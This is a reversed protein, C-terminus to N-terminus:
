SRTERGRACEQAVREATEAVVANLRPGDECAQRFARKVHEETTGGTVAAVADRLGSREVDGVRGHARDAGYGPRARVQLRHEAGSTGTLILGRAEWHATRDAYAHPGQPNDRVARRIVDLVDRFRYNAYTYRRPDGVPPATGRLAASLVAYLREAFDAPDVEDRMVSERAAVAREVAYVLTCELDRETLAQLSARVAAAPGPAEKGMAQASAAVDAWILHLPAVSRHHADNMTRLTCPERRCSAGCLPSRSGLLPPETSAEKTSEDHEGHPVATLVPRDMGDSAVAAHGPPLAVVNESQEQHLNMTAGVARRDDEAPLRHMVKLASNKIVDPLIKSPIQEVVVVGEGYARIEALLSAFLEVAAAAPGSDVNKLLRHAEEVVLVHRLPVGGAGHHVRLHEVIRILVAGILFAKDQDSTITELELVVNGALLGAIDLPHGGEFFRGPTGVRLSGMRVDVFGRVDATIEKGYGIMEVVQRATAQLDGLNPYVATRPEDPEALEFKPKHLPRPEGTVLDWGAATYCQSLARALVQPFPEAAQFAAEFLARVLDVHSQLPFGPEPELPNLSAPAVDVDGPRIVTVRRASEPGDCAALRGAMRAYEAKAPEVALWPVPRAHTSLATLLSRVTQSKGSGTAGCVFAHRNLTSRSVHLRDAASLSEDLIDGILFGDPAAGTEGTDESTVDFRNPAVTRIGPLERAPPRALAAVLEAPAVFPVSGPPGSGAAPQPTLATLAEALPVPRRAPVLVYPLDDLDGAGCLLAASALASEPREAGVLVRVNWVGTALARTLERYRAEAREAAIRDAASNERQRLRPLQVSLAAREQELQEYPVPEALVLWAFADPLHAVADDFSGRRETPLTREDDGLRLTDHAGPCPLWFPMRALLAAAEGPPLDRATAGPPYRVPRVADDAAPEEGAAPFFPAGGVLFHLPLHTGPRIWAAAIGAPGGQGRHSLVAHAATVAATLQAATRDETRDEPRRPVTLLRHFRYAGLTAPLAAPLAPGPGAGTSM